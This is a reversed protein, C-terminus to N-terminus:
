LLSSSQARYPHCLCTPPPVWLILKEGLPPWTGLMGCGLGTQLALGAQGLGEPIWPGSGVGPASPLAVGTGLPDSVQGRSPALALQPPLDQGRGPGTLKTVKTKGSKHVGRRISERTHQGGLEEWQTLNGLLIASAGPAQRGSLSM